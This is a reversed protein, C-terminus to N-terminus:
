PSVGDVGYDGCNGGIDFCPYGKATGFNTVRDIHVGLNLKELGHRGAVIRQRNIQDFVIYGSYTLGTLAVGVESVFKYEAAASGRNRGLWQNAGPAGFKFAAVGGDRLAFGVFYGVAIYGRLAQSGSNVQHITLSNRDNEFCIGASLGNPDDVAVADLYRQRM